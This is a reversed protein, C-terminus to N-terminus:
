QIVPKALTIKKIGDPLQRKVARHEKRLWSSFNGTRM